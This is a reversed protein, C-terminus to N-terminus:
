GATSIEVLHPYFAVHGAIQGVADYPQEYTWIADPTTGSETVVDYYSADGKYPCYTHSDSAKIASADVDAIPIYYVPRLSAERLVLAADTEAIVRGGARVTVRQPAAEISIPHDIGPIRVTGVKV